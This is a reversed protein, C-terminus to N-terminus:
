RAAYHVTDDEGLMQQASHKIAEDKNHLWRLKSLLPGLFDLRISHRGAKNGWTEADFRRARRHQQQKTYIFRATVDRSYYITRERFVLKWSVHIKIRINSWVCRTQLSNGPSLLESKNLFNM